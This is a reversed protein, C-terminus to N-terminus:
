KGKYYIKIPYTKKLEEILEQKMENAKLSQLNQNLMTRYQQFKEPNMDLKQKNI